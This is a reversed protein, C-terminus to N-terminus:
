FQIVSPAYPAVVKISRPRTKAEKAATLQPVKKTGTRLTPMVFMQCNCPAMETPTMRKAMGTPKKQPKSIWIQPIRDPIM